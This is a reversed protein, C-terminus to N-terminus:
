PTVPSILLNTCLIMSTIIASFSFTRLSSKKRAAIREVLEEQQMGQYTSGIDPQQAFSM